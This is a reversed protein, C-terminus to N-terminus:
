GVLIILLLLALVVIGVGLFANAKKAGMKKAKIGSLVSAVISAITLFLFPFPNGNHSFVHGLFLFTSIIAIIASFVSLVAYTMAGETQEEFDQVVEAKLNKRVPFSAYSVNTLTTLTILLLILKKM